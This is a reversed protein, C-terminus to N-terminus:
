ADMVFVEVGDGAAIVLFAGVPTTRTEVTSRQL